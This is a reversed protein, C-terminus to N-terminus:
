AKDEPSKDTSATKGPMGTQMDKLKYFLMDLVGQTPWKKPDPDSWKELVMGLGAGELERRVREPSGYTAVLQEFMDLAEQRKAMAAALEPGQGKDPNIREEKTWRHIAM